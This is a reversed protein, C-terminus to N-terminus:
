VFEGGGNKEIEHSIGRLEHKIDNLVSLLKENHKNMLQLQKAIETLEISLDTM